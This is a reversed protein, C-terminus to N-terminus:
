LVVVDGVGYVVEYCLWVGVEYVFRHIEIYVVM